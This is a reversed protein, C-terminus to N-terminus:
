KTRWITEGGKDELEVGLAHLQDRIRDAEAWNKEARAQLRQQVLAEIQENDGASKGGQLYSDPEAELLGLVNALKKMIAALRSAEDANGQDRARNIHSALDFLVAIAEPTNFDDDMAQEFRPTYENDTTDATSPSIGRLSNYLRTLAARASDLLQDSFNLPSRYHSALVFYRIEEGQYHKLIERVTFFNGLSKSMKEDNIRVFGNHMWLNVFAEGTAAESQAIENEHHPFQLDQGGGHIDFHNGLCCTSMASCEIHWGPRGQGWPSDWSPEDPKAAKWLVFDLPDHKSEDVAVREGARLDRLQKGSLQGYDAFASVDYYVDGNEAQYAHGNAVLKEVMAIIDNMSATARPELSPPLVSLETIDEHMAAIYRGTLSAIDEGNENARNIIKDDIDTINRVYTVDLGTYRMYRVVTDFVVLVRAHGLHCLDYVTMGCVYMRVKGPEIPTFIEKKRTLSNYIQLM